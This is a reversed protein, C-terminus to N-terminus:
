DLAMLCEYIKILVAKNLKNLCKYSEDCNPLGRWSTNDESREQLEKKTFKVLESKKYRANLEEVTVSTM